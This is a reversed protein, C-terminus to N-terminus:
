QPVNLSQNLSLQILEYIDKARTLDIIQKYEKEFKEIIHSYAQMKNLGHIDIANIHFPIKENQSGKLKNSIAYKFGSLKDSPFKFISIDNTIEEKEFSIIESFSMKKNMLVGTSDNKWIVCIFNKSVKQYFILSRFNSNDLDYKSFQFYDSKLEFQNESIISIRTLLKFSEIDIRYPNFDTDKRTGLNAFLLNCLEDEEIQNYYVKDNKVKLIGDSVKQDILSEIQDSMLGLEITFKHIIKEYDYYWHNKVFYTISNGDNPSVSKFSEIIDQQYKKNKLGIYGGTFFIFDKNNGLKLNTLVNRQNTKRHLRIFKTLKFIHVPYKENDIFEKCLTKINGSKLGRDKEWEVLGYRSLGNGRIFIFRERKMAGRISNIEKNAYPFRNNYEVMIEEATMLEDFDLLIKEIIEPATIITNRRLILNGFDDQELDFNEVCITKIFLKQREDLDYKSFSFVQNEYIRDILVIYLDNIIEIVKEKSIFSINVLYNINLARFRKYALIDYRGAGKLKLTPSLVYFSNSGFLELLNALTQETNEIHSFQYETATFFKSIKWYDMKIKEMLDFSFEFFNSLFHFKKYTQNKFKVSLQRVRERTLGLSKSLQLYLENDDINKNRKLILNFIARDNTKFKSSDLVFRDILYLVNLENREILGLLNEDNNNQFGLIRRLEDLIIAQPTFLKDKREEILSKVQLRFWNLERATKTGCSRVDKFDLPLFLSSRIFENVDFTDSVIISSITNKAKISLDCYLDEVEKLFVRFGTGNKLLVNYSREIELSKSYNSPLVEVNIKYKGCINLLEKESKVGCNRIKKFTKNHELFLLIDNLTNLGSYRCVNYTRVSLGESIQLEELTM